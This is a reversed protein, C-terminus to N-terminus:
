SGLGEKILEDLRPLNAGSVAEDNVYYFPTGGFDPIQRAVNMGDNIHRELDDSALDAKFKEMDLEMAEALKEIREPTLSREAMLSFHMKTYQGQLGAALAAKAAHRSTKSRRDLLPLEKFVIRVDDGHTEILTKMWDASKKCYGCNYDFFEVVTVKADEPGISIDRPDNFIAPKISEFAALSERKDYIELAEVILEPNELLYNKVIDEVAAKDTAGGCGSIALMALATTAAFFHRM